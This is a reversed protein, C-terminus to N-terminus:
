VAAAPKPLLRALPAPLWAPRSRLVWYAAGGLATLALLVALVIPVVASSQAPALIPSRRAAPVLTVNVSEYSLGEVSRMVLNKIAPVIIAANLEPTHKVFVSASSPKVEKALPDNNPLVVHVRAVVVGDIKRLTQELEQSLGYIFRVREETPTSLLGDKKFIDGLNTSRERPLGRSKLVALADVVQGKDVAVSWTKGADPTEKEASLGSELLAGVMDNAEAESLKSYLASKCGVLGVILCLLGINRITRSVWHKAM